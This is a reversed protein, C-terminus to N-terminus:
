HFSDRYALPSLNTRKKFIRNFSQPHEFGLQYAIEAVSLESASLLQKAKEILAQQIHQQASLGTLSRLMDSLYRPSLNLTDALYQVSPQGKSLAEENSFYDDLIQELRALLDDYAVKRTLFQRHYFRNSHTLLLDLQAVLVDQSFGDTPTRLEQAINNFIGVMIDKEQPSLHLAESTAYSFFGYQRIRTALPYRRLLDPHFYLAYGESQPSPDVWTIVQRPALFALGGSTFDYYRQGYKVQGQAYAKFSIKYFDLLIRDGPHGARIPTEQYNILAMLPHFPVPLCLHDMFRAISTFHHTISQASEM